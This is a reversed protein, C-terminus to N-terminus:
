KEESVSQTFNKRNADESIMSITKKKKIDISFVTMGNIEDAHAM